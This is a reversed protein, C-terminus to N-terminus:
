TTIAQTELFVKVSGIIDSNREHLFVQMGLAEAPELNAATDEVFLTTKPDLGQDEIVKQFFKEDPKRLGHEHSFYVADFCAIFQHYCFPGMLKKIAKIHAANTNSLLVLNFHARLRKLFWIRADPVGILLANWARELDNEFPKKASVTALLAFFEKSSIQGTDYRAIIPELASLDEPLGLEALKAETLEPAIDILVGGFDFIITQIGTTM